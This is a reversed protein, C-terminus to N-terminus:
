RLMKLDDLYATILQTRPVVKQLIGKENCLVKLVALNGVQVQSDKTVQTVDSDSDGRIKKYLKKITIKGNLENSIRRREENDKVSLLLRAQSFSLQHRLMKQKESDSLKLLGLRQSVYSRTKGIVQAIQQHTQGADVRRKFELALEIDSLDSREINELLQIDRVESDELDRIMAKINQLGLRIHARFRREGYVIMYRYDPHKIPRILIPQILGYKRISNEMEQEEVGEFFKRPQDPDPM